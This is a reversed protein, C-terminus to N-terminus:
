EIILACSSMADVRGIISTRTLGAAMCREVYQDANSAPLSVLLGGSTQPDFMVDAADFSDVVGPVGLGDGLAEALYARNSANARSRCGAEAYAVAGDLLPVAAHDIVITVESAQAMEYAHGALGFGTVDTAARVGIEVALRSADNNLRAMSEIASQAHKEDCMDKKMATTVYGTGVAKTLVLVDGPQASENTMMREPDVTGTVSMGFSIGADRVSHGGMLAAGSTRVQEAGGALIANLLTLPADTDPFMVINLATRPQAGMAYLDSLANAAAIMGYARADNVVPPFFDLSQVLALNPAIRYVGADSFRDTGILVNPDDSFGDLDRVVQAVAQM